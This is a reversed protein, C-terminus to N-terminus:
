SPSISGARVVVTRGDWEIVADWPVEHARRELAGFLAALLAPGRIGERNYGLRTGVRRTGVILRDVRFAAGFPLLLPGDQVVHVDEITGYRRGETDVVESRLLDSLNM